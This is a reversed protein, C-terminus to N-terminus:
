SKGAQMLESVKEKTFALAEDPDNSSVYTSPSATKDGIGVNYVWDYIREYEKERIADNIFTWIIPDHRDFSFKIQNYGERQFSVISALNVVQNAKLKYTYFHQQECGHYNCTIIHLM